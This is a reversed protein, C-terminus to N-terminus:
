QGARQRRLEAIEADYRDQTSLRWAAIRRDEDLCWRIREALGQAAFVVPLGAVLALLPLLAAM